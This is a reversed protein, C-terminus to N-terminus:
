IKNFIFIWYATVNEELYIISLNGLLYFVRKDSEMLYCTMLSCTEHTIISICLGASIYICHTLAVSFQLTMM